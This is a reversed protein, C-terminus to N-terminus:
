RAQELAAAADPRGDETEDAPMLFNWAETISRLRGVTEAFASRTGLPQTLFENVREILSLATDIRPNSGPSFAGINILDEAGQYTAYIAKLKQAALYHDRATIAPMLRSVSQLIDVAPYQGLEALKRSLVVHGDLLSRVCDAVPDNM